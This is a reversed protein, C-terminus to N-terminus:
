KGKMNDHNIHKSKKNDLYEHALIDKLVLMANLESYGYEKKLDDFLRRIEKKYKSVNVEKQYTALIPYKKGWAKTWDIKLDKEENSNKIAKEIKKM